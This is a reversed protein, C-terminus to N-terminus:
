RGGLVYNAVVAAAKGEDAVADYRGGEAVGPVPSSVSVMLVMALTRPHISGQGGGLSARGLAAGDSAM